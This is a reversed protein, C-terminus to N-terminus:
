VSGSINSSPRAVLGPVIGSQETPSRCFRSGGDVHWHFYDGPSTNCRMARIKSPALLVQERWCRYPAVYRAFCASM